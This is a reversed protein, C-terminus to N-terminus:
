SMAPAPLMLFEIKNGLTDIGFGSSGKGPGRTRLTGTASTGDTCNVDWDGTGSIDYYTFTADCTKGVTITTPKVTGTRGVQKVMVPYVERGKLVNEWSVDLYFRASKEQIQTPYGTKSTAIQGSYVAEVVAKAKDCNYLNTVGDFALLGHNLDYGKKFRENGRYNETVAQIKQNSAGSGLFHGCLESKTTYWGVTYSNTLDVDSIDVPESTTNCGVLVLMGFLISFYRM